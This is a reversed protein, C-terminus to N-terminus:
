SRSNVRVKGLRKTLSLRRVIGGLALGVVLLVWTSPEPATVTAVQWEGVVVNPGGGSYGTVIVGSTGATPVGAGNLDVTLTGAFAPDGTTFTETADSSSSYLTLDVNSLSINDAVATDYLPGSSSDGTTLSTSTVTYPTFGESTTFFGLLDIGNNFLQSTTTLPGTGTATITVASPDTDNITLLIQAKAASVSVLLLVAAGFCVLHNKLYTLSIKM